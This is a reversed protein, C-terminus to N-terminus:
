CEKKLGNNISMMIKKLNILFYLERNARFYVERSSSNVGKTAIFEPGPSM